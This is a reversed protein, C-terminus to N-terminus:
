ADAGTVQSTANAFAYDLHGLEGDFRYSCPMPASSKTEMDACGGGADHGANVACAGSIASCSCM